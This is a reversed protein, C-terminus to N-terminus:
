YAIGSEKVWQLGWIRKGMYNDKYSGEADVQEQMDGVRKNNDKDGQKSQGRIRTKSYKNGLYTASYVKPDSYKKNYMQQLSYILEEIENM